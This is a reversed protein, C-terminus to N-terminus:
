NILINWFCNNNIITSTLEVIRKGEISMSTDGPVSNFFTSYMLCNNSSFIYIQETTSNIIKFSINNYYPNSNIEPLYINCQPITVIYTLSPYYYIDPLKITYESTDIIIKNFFNPNSSTSNFTNYKNTIISTSNYFTM